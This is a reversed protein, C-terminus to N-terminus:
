TLSRCGRLTVRPHLKFRDLTVDPATYGAVTLRTEWRLSREILPLVTDIFWTLGDYNPHDMGHIAGIFLIGTREEFRRPTPSATIAHGLVSVNGEHHARIIAAEAETVAVVDMAPELHAFEQSLAASLDFDQDLLAAQEALRVSAVAETDIIVRPQAIKELGEVPGQQPDRTADTASSAALNTLTDFQDPGEIASPELDFEQGLLSAPQIEVVIAAPEALNDQITSDLILSALAEHIQDLNHTRAIWIIDYWDRRSATFNAFDPAAMGHMVEVTDPLEARIVSLPYQNTRM